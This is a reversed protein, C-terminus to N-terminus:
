AITWVRLVFQQEAREVEPTNILFSNVGNFVDAVDDELNHDSRWLSRAGMFGVHDATADVSSTPDV